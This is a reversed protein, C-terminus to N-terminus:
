DGGQQVAWTTMRHADAPTGVEAAAASATVNVREFLWWGVLLLAGEVAFVVGYATLADGGALRTIGDVASGSLVSGIAQGLNHTLGWVSMLLGGRVPTAFHVVASLLGASALGTGVGLAFVLGQFLATHGLWGSLILGGFVGTNIWLGVRTVTAYGVVKILWMGAAMMALVTGAGWLATLRTTESVSMGLVLAGFPELIIDQAQTGVMILILCFFFRRVQPDGFVVTRLTDWFPKARAQAAAASQSATRPEQRATAVWSLIFAIVAIGAVVSMLKAVSYTELLRGLGIAGGMIGVFMAIKFGTMAQTRRHGTFKDTLLAEFTNSALNRGLHHAGMAVVLGVMVLLTATSELALRAAAVVGMGALLSGLIVYPERRLGWLTYGDSRYGLWIRIPSILLPIAFFLGILSAPLGLEVIMVRNLTGGVLVSTLGLGIPYGTLRLLNIHWLKDKMTSRDKCLM